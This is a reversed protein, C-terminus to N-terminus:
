QNSLDMSVDTLGGYKTEMVSGQHRDCTFKKKLNVMSSLPNLTLNDLDGTIELVYQSSSDSHNM